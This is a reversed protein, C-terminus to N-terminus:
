IIDSDRGIRRHNDYLSAHVTYYGKEKPTIKATYSVEEAGSLKKTTIQALEEHEGSPTDVWFQLDLGNSSDLGKITVEAELERGTTGYSNSM